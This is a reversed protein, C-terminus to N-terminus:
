PVFANPLPKDGNAGFQVIHTGATTRAIFWTASAPRFVTPDFKGDGDYDGPAIVDGNAGFPFGYFSLDESRVILWEGSAPRWIAIDTKGDGTYDGQAPKDTSAGFQLALVGATSRNIWWEAGTAAPRFIGIDAKGDGDYDAVVPQDGAAGFQEIRTPAGSSQSIYWTSNSSRFVAFDAKGDADYDAPVPVDGNAGFPLAFFSFDESRLVYWEGSAPRFFAIDAKGDGTYDAPAIKDTSAGFQLAFTQGNGSRNIWWESFAGVPRFIGIDTKGDGDFDFPSRRSTSPGSLFRALGARGVGNAREFSGGAVVAGSPQTVITSVTSDTSGSFGSDPIGNSALRVINTRALGGFSEFYGGAMIKGDATLHVTFVNANGLNSVIPSTQFSGDVTGTSNLRVVGVPSTASGTFLRGGVVIRGDTQVFMSHVNTFTEGDAILGSRFTRDHSGDSNVRVVGVHPEVTGTTSNVYSFAFPGAAIIQGNPLVAIAEFRHPVQSFSSDISGDSNLRVFGSSLFPDASTTTYGFLIKGDPQVAAANGISITAITALTFTADPTGDANLRVLTQSSGNNIRIGGGVLLLKGDSQVVIRTITGAILVGNSFTTDLSGSSTLRIVSNVAAGNLRNFAGGVILKGDSQAITARVSAFNLTTAVFNPDVAGATTMAVLSNRDVGSIRTFSGGVFYDGASTPTVAQVTGTTTGNPAFTDDLTGDSNLQALGGRATGNLSSFTGNILVKGSPLIRVQLVSSNAGTGPTFTTDLTGDANLRAVRPRSTSSITTFFGGMVIKGDPQVALEWPNSNMTPSNFSEDVGGNANLRAVWKSQGGIRLAGGIILKGDPLLGVSFVGTSLSPPNMPGFPSLFTDDVAGNSSLRAIGFTDFSGNFSWFDGVVIIKGDPQMAIDRIFSNDPGTGTAFTTDLSGDSNLRAIGPRYTTADFAVFSGAIIVKGDALPVVRSVQGRIKASFGTDVSRDANLRVIGATAFGNFSKFGGAVLTKGDPLQEVASVFGNAIDLNTVFTPDLDGDAEPRASSVGNPANRDGSFGTDVPMQIKQAPAFLAVSCVLTLGIVLRKALAIHCFLM